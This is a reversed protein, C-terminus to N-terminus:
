VIDRPPHMFPAAPGGNHSFVVDSYKGLGIRLARSLKSGVPSSFYISVIQPSLLCWLCCDMCGPGPGRERPFAMLRMDHVTGFSRLVM